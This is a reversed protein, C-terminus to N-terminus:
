LHDFDLLRAKFQCSHGEKASDVCPKTKFNKVRKKERLEDVGHGFKCRSGYICYGKQLWNQCLETKYMEKKCKGDESMLEFSIDIEELSVVDNENQVQIKSVSSDSPSVSRDSSISEEGSYYAAPSTLALHSKGMKKYNLIGYNTNM